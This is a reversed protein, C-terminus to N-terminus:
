TDDNAEGHDGGAVRDNTVQHDILCDTELALVARGVAGGVAITVVRLLAM